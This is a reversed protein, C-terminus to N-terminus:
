VTIVLKGRAHGQGLYSLAEPMEALPYRREIVPKVTGDALLGGLFRLDDRNLKAVFMVARRSGAKSILQRGVAMGTPGIWRNTKPGGVLVYTGGDVLVRKCDPWSRNGPIDLMLDHRGGERTFDESTYDIVRGAGLSRATEVNHPSCVATVEAGLAKAIQVAFTGVGGSAGNILVKQGAQLGGKDRLGQLATVGAIPVSAAAEFSVGSPKAVVAKTVAVYEAFAGDRGGFVEDGPRVHDVDKGVAEVVGAFDVGPVGAKPKRVGVLLRAFYPIGTVFHWDLPNVSEAHVRVLVADDAVAPRDIERLGLVDRPLGYKEYVIARM